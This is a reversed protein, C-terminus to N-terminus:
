LHAGTAGQIKVELTPLTVSTLPNSSHHRPLHHFFPPHVHHWQCNQLQSFFHLRMLDCIVIAFRMDCTAHRMVNSLDFWMVDCWVAACRCNMLHRASLSLSLSLLALPSLHWSCSFSISLHSPLTRLAVSPWCCPPVGLIKKAVTFPKRDGKRRQFCGGLARSLAGLHKDM